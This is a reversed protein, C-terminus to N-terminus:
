DKVCRVSFGGEKYNAGKYIESSDYGLGRGWAFTSSYSSSSWWYGNSGNNGFSGDGYRGGGPLASFGNANTGNGSKCWGEISKMKAGYEAGRSGSSNVQTPCMGMSIELQEWEENSPIHWGAPCAKIAAMWNYLVGYNKYNSTAKAEDTNTGNYDCVYYFPKSQAGDRSPSVDPLFALNEAMWIQTGIKICKYTHGDRSDTFTGALSVPSETPITDTQNNEIAVLQFVFRNEAPKQQESLVDWSIRKGTGASVAKIDGSVFQPIVNFTKGGDASCELRVDFTIGDKGASFDYSIIVKEAEKKAHLNSFQQAFVTVASTTCILILIYRLM